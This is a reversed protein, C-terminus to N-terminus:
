ALATNLRDTARGHDGAFEHRVSPLALAATLAVDLKDHRILDRNDPRSRM